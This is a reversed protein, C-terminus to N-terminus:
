PMYQGGNVHLIQGTVYGSLQASALFLIPGSCDESAGMRGMPVANKMAAMREPPTAVHFPTDIVGPAIVNVRINSKALDIAMARTLNHVYAKASAYHAAGPGGGNAGAVSGVNIIAGGGQAELHPIAAQSAAILSRVNLNMARDYLAWDLNRFPKRDIIAGANNVLVDLRGLLRAAEEVVRRAEEPKDFDGPIAVARGGAAKIEAVVADAAAASSNYHVAVKSGNQAFAKAAAAGIGTSAGTVLVGKGNLDEIVPHKEEPEM